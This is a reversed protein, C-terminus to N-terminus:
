PGSTTPTPEGVVLVSRRGSGAVAAAVSGRVFRGLAGRGHTGIVILDSGTFEAYEGLREGPDGHLLALEVPPRRDGFTALLTRRLVAFTAEESPTGPRGDTENAVVSTGVRVVHAARVECGLRGAVGVAVALVRPDLPGNELGILMRRFPAAGVQAAGLSM